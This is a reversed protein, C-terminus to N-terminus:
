CILIVSVFASRVDIGIIESILFCVFDLLVDSLFLTHKTAKTM